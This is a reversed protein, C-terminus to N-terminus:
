SHADRTPQAACNTLPMVVGAKKCMAEWNIHHPRNALVHVVLRSGNQLFPCAACADAEGPVHRAEAVAIALKDDVPPVGVHVGAAAQLSSSVTSHVPKLELVDTEIERMHEFLYFFDVSCEPAPAARIQSAGMPALPCAVMRVRPMDM